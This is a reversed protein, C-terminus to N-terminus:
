FAGAHSPWSRINGLYNYPVSNDLNGEPAPPSCPNDGGPFTPIAYSRVKFINGSISPEFNDHEPDVLQPKIVNILNDSRLQSENCTPNSSQCGSSDGLFSLDPNDPQGNWIINGRIQLNSDAMSPNPVNSGAPPVTAGQIVFDQYPGHIENLAINNYIFINRNPIFQGEDRATGWGGAANNALCKATEGDCSRSGHVAEIVHDNVGANCLTNYAILINYGGNIGLGVTGTDHIINNIFKIDSAEYHSWPSIMWNLGTGQGATFGGTLCDYIENGEVLIYASGGKLVIGWDGANHIKNRIIHGYQVAVYDLSFWFAGSIDSDEVYLYQVQNAKLAEQGQRDEGDFGDLKCGRVLIHDCDAIHLVNGGGGQGKDTLIDLNMFYIYSSHQLDIYGHIRSSGNGNIAQIIIPCKMTGQAFEWFSPMDTSSYDGPMLLIRYGNGTLNSGKPIRSWGESISKLAQNRSSGNNADDGHIPDIWIDTLVPKGMNYAVPGNDHSFKNDRIELNSNQFKGIYDEQLARSSAESDEQMLVIPMIWNILILLILYSAIKTRIFSQDIDRKVIQTKM